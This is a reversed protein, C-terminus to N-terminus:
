TSFVFATWHAPWPPHEMLSFTRPHKGRTPMRTLPRRAARVPPPTQFKEDGSGNDNVSRLRIEPMRHPYQINNKPHYSAVINNEFPYEFHPCNRAPPGDAGNKAALAARPTV